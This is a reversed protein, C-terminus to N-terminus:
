RFVERLLRATVPSDVYSDFAEALRDLTMAQVGLRLGHPGGAGPVEINTTRIGAQALDGLSLRLADAASGTAVQVQQTETFAFFEGTGRVGEEDLGRALARANALVQREYAHGYLAAEPLAVYVPAILETHSDSQM